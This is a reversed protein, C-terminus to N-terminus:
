LSCGFYEGGGAYGFTGAENSILFNPGHVTGTFTTIQSTAITQAPASAELSLYNGDALEGVFKKVDIRNTTTNGKNIIM